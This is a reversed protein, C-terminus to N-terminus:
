FCGRAGAGGLVLCPLGPRLPVPEQGSARPRGAPGACDGRTGIGGAGAAPQLGPRLGRRVPAQPFQPGPWGMTRACPERTAGSGFRPRAGPPTPRIPDPVERVSVQEEPGRRRGSTGKDSADTRGDTPEPGRCAPPVRAPSPGVPGPRLRWSSGSCCTPVQVGCARPRPLRFTSVGGGTGSGAGVLAGLPPDGVGQAELASGVGLALSGRGRPRAPQLEARGPIASSHRPGPSM